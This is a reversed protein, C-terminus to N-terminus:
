QIRRLNSISLSGSDGPRTNVLDVVFLVATAGAPDPTPGELRSAPVMEGVPVIVQREKADLYVSKVWRRDDPFRLQVSVRMPRVARAEFAIAAFPQHVTLDAAAAVFQSHRVEALVYHLTAAEGDVSVQGSSVPDKEVRWPSSLGLPQAISPEPLPPVAPIRTDGSWNSVIWPVPPAGPATALHIELRSRGNGSLRVPSAGAPLPSALEFGEGNPSIRLVAGRAIADVVSYVRGRRIADLLRRADGPADGSLVEELLVHNSITRFSAEYGPGIGLRAARGEDNRRGTGHADVAALAVIRRTKELADWRDLTRVPRDLLSAITAAPRVLYDFPARLLALKGEDRWESDLNIWELGDVPASWDHWALDPRQHDPHAAIGFGGLRAVDEVVSAAEGGLPYPAAPMDIAVYHGGNTSIEVGDLCLVGNLYEAPHPQRTGDGHDTFIVFQLGARAAAAAVEGRDGAGDSVVTHVHYAGRVTRRRLDQQVADLPIELPSPPVTVLLFVVVAALCAATTV